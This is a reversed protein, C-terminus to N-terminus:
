PGTRRFLGAHHQGAPVLQEFLDAFAAHAGDSMAWCVSGTLRSTASLIMLGPMSLLCTSARKSASRCASAKISWGLM